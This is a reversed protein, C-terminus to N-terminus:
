LLDSIDEWASGEKYLTYVTKGKASINEAVRLVDKNALLWAKFEQSDKPVELKRSYSVFVHSKADRTPAFALCPFTERTEQNTCLARQMIPGNQAKFEILSVNKANFQAMTKGERQSKQNIRSFQEAAKALAM